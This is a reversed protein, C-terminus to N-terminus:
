AALLSVADPCPTQLPFLPLTEWRGSVQQVNPSWVSGSAVQVAGRNELTQAGRVEAGTWGRASLTREVLKVSALKPRM